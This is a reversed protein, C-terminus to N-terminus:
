TTVIITIHSTRKLIKYARGQARPRIRKLTGGQDVYAAKIVLKTQDYGFNNIANSNASQLVKIIPTCSAYPLFDLVLLAEMCTMGTIRKLVRRIKTPSMRVHKAVAMVEQPKRIAKNM